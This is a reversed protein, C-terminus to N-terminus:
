SASPLMTSREGDLIAPAHCGAAGFHRMETVLEATGTAGIRDVELPFWLDVSASVAMPAFAALSGADAFAVGTYEPPSLGDDHVDARLSTPVHSWACDGEDLAHAIGSLRVPVEGLRITWPASRASRGAPRSPSGDAPPDRDARGRGGGRPPATSSDIREDLRPDLTLIVRTHPADDRESRGSAVDFRVASRPNGLVAALRPEMLRGIAALQDVSKGWVRAAFRRPFSPPPM